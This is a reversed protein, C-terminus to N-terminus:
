LKSNLRIGQVIKKIKNLSVFPRWIHGGGVKFVVDPTVVNGLDYGPRWVFDKNKRTITITPVGLMAALHGGGSDNSIVVLAGRLYEILQSIDSFTRVNFGEFKEELSEKEHPMGVIEVKMGLGSLRKTLKYFGSSSFNKKENPTTPFIVIHGEDNSPRFFTVSPRQRCAIVGFMEKAYHDVWDIMHQGSSPDLCFPRNIIGAPRSAEEVEKEQVVLHEPFDKATFFFVGTYKSPFQQLRKQIWPSSIDLLCIDFCEFSAEFDNPFCQVDLWIFNKQSSQLIDSFLTVRYGSNTLAQALRICITVDGLAPYPVILIKKM